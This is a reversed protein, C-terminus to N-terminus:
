VAIGKVASCQVACGNGESCKVASCLLDRWQVVSCQGSIGKVASCQVASCLLERWKVVSCQVERWRKEERSCDSQLCRWQTLVLYLVDWACVTYLVSLVCSDIVLPVTLVCSYPGWLAITVCSQASCEPDKCHLLLVPCLVVRLTRVTCYNSLVCSVKGQLLPTWAGHFLATCCLPQLWGGRRRGPLCGATDCQGLVAELPPSSTWLVM